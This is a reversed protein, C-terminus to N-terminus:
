WQTNYPDDKLVQRLDQTPVEKHRECPIIGHHWHVQCGCNYRTMICYECTREQIGDYLTHTDKCHKCMIHVHPERTKHMRHALVTHVM